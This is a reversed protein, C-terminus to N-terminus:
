NTSKLSIEVRITRPTQGQIALEQVRNVLEKLRYVRHPFQWPNEASLDIWWGQTRAARKYTYEVLLSGALVSSSSRISDWLGPSRCVFTLDHRATGDAGVNLNPGTRSVWSPRNGVLRVSEPRSVTAEDIPATASSLILTFPLPDSGTQLCSFEVKVNDKVVEFSAPPKLAQRTAAKLEARVTPTYDSAPFVEVKGHPKLFVQGAADDLVSFLKGLGGTKSLVLVLM